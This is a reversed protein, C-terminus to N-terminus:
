LNQLSNGFEDFTIVRKRSKLQMLINMINSKAENREPSALSKIESGVYAGFQKCPTLESLSDKIQKTLEIICDDVEDNKNNECLRRRKVALRPSTLSQTDNEEDSSNISVNVKLLNEISASSPGTSDIRSSCSQREDELFSMAKLYSWKMEKADSGSPKPKKVKGYYDSLNKWKQKAAKGDELGTENAIKAWTSECKSKDKHDEHGKRWLFENERVIEIFLDTTAQINAM